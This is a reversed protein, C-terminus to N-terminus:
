HEEGVERKEVKNKEVKNEEVAIEKARQLFVNIATTFKFTNGDNIFEVLNRKRCDNKIMPEIEIKRCISKYSSEEVIKEIDEIHYVERLGDYLNKGKLNLEYSLVGLLLMLNRSFKEQTEDSNLYILESTQQLDYDFSVKFFQKYFNLNESVIAYFSESSLIFRGSLLEQVIELHKIPYNM